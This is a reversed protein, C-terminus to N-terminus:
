LMWKGDTDEGIGPAYAKRYGTTPDLVEPRKSM